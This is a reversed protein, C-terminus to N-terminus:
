VWDITQGFQLEYRHLGEDAHIAVIDGTVIGMNRLLAGIERKELTEPSVVRMQDFGIPIMRKRCHRCIQQRRSIRSELRM